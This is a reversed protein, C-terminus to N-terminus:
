KKDEDSGDEEEDADSGEEEESEETFADGQGEEDFSLDDEDSGEEGEEAGDNATEDTDDGFGDGDDESNDMGFADDSTDADGDTSSEEEGEGYKEEREQVAKKWKQTHKQMRTLYESMATGISGYLSSQIELLDFTPKDGDMELMQEMEPLVNNRSLWTRQFYARLVAIVKNVADGDEGLVEGPIIDSTIYAELARDVFSTYAEFASAQQETRTTDPAPLTTEISNLFELALKEPSEKHLKKQETTLSKKYEELTDLLKNFLVSSRQTYISVFSTLRATFRKQLRLVRRTMILNNNVVSTAFDPSSTPDVLEPNIGWSSIHQRRLRDALDTNGGTNSQQIDEFEVKTSPYSEGEVTIDFDYGARRLFDITMSPDPSGLPFANQGSQLILEQTDSITKEPDPDDEDVNIRARKRGISNRVQEMTEAFQITTRMSALMKSKALLSQGVGNDNYDFAIYTVLEAPVFLIQTQQKQLARAMMVRYVNQTFDFDLDEDYLGNRLRNNLDNEVITSFAQEFEAMTEKHNSNDSFGNIADKARAILNSSEEGGSGNNYSQRMEGYYDREGDMVLPHGKGDLLVFYAVHEAPSGPTHVPIVSEVPLKMVLPHGESPRNTYEQPTLVQVPRNGPRQQNSYLEDLEADTYTKSKSGSDGRAEMGPSRRSLLDNVKKSRGSRQLVSRKLVDFNDTISLTPISQVREQTGGAYTAHNEMSPSPGRTEARPSGLFGLNGGDALRNDANSFSETSVGNIIEDINNEPLTLLVHAGHRFLADELMEDLREDIKYHKKFHDEIIGLLPRAVEGDFLGEKVSFGLETTFMDRPSLTSGVLIQEALETDPLLQFIADADIKEQGTAKSVKDMMERSVQLEGPHAMTRQTGAPDRVLKSSIHSMSAPDRDNQRYGLKSRNKTPQRAM